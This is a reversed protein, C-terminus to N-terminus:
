YNVLKVFTPKIQPILHNQELGLTWTACEGSDLWLFWKPKCM